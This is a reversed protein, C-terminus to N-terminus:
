LTDGGGRLANKLKGPTLVGQLVESDEFLLYPIYEYDRADLAKEDERVETIFRDSELMKKVESRDLGNKEAIDCLVNRDSLRLNEVFNAHFLAFNLKATTGPSATAASFKMLRHADLTNCVQVGRLNYELGARSAMRSIHEMQKLADEESIGHTSMFHETMTEVPIEPAEPDLEYARYEIETASELVLLSITDDLQKEGMYCFPCGFDGWITIKM